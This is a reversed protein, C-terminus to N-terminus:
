YVLFCSTACVSNVQKLAFLAVAYLLIVNLMFVLIKEVVILLRTTISLIIFFFLIFAFYADNILWIIM